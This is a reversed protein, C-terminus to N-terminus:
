RYALLDATSLPIEAKVSYGGDTGDTNMPMEGPKKDELIDMKHKTDHYFARADLLGWDFHGVYRREVAM